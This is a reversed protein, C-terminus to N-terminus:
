VLAKALMFNKVKTSINWFNGKFNQNWWVYKNFYLTM